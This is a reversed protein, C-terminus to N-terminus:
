HTWSDAPPQTATHHACVSCFIDTIESNQCKVVNWQLKSLSTLMPKCNCRYFWVIGNCSQFRYFYDVSLTIMLSMWSMLISKNQIQIANHSRMNTMNGIKLRATQLICNIWPLNRSLLWSYEMYWWSLRCRFAPQLAAQFTASNTSDSFWSCFSWNCVSNGTWLSCTSYTSNSAVSIWLLLSLPMLFLLFPSM